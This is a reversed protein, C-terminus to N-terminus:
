ARNYLSPARYIGTSGSVLKIQSATMKEITFSHGQVGIGDILNKNKLINAISIHQNRNGQNNLIGYDNLILDVNPCHKRALEFAKIIWDVGTTGEGGLASIYDARYEGNNKDEMPSIPGQSM